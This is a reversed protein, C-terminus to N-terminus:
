KERRRDSNNYFMAAVIVATDKSFGDKQFKYAMERVNEFYEKEVRERASPERPKQMVGSAINENIFRM